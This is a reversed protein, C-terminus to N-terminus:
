QPNVILVGSGSYSGSAPTGTSSLKSSLNISNIGTKLKVKVGDPGLSEGNVSLQSTINESLSITGEPWGGSSSMNEGALIQADSDGTCDLSVQTSTTDGNLSAPAVNGHALVIAGPVSCSIKTPEIITHGDCQSWENSNDLVVLCVPNTKFLEELVDLDSVSASHVQGIDIFNMRIWTLVWSSKVLCHSLGECEKWAEDCALRKEDFQRDAVTIRIKIHPTSSGPVTYCRFYTNPKAAIATMVWDFTGITPYRPDSVVFNSVKFNALLPSTLAVASESRFLSLVSLVLFSLNRILKISM